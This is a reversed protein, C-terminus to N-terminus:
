NKIYNYQYIVHKNNFVYILDDQDNNYIIIFYSNIQNVFEPINPIFNKDIAIINNDIEKIIDTNFFSTFYNLLYYNAAPCDQIITFHHKFTKLKKYIHPYQCSILIYNFLSPYILTLKNLTLILKNINLKSLSPFFLSSETDKLDIWLVKKLKVIHEVWEELESGNKVEEEEYSHSSIYKNNIYVFDIEVMDIDPNRNLLDLTYMLNNPKNIYGHHASKNCHTLM